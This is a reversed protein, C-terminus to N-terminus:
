KKKRIRLKIPLLTSLVFWVLVISLFTIVGKIVQPSINGLSVLPSVYDTLTLGIFLSLFVTLTLVFSVELKTKCKPCQYGKSYISYNWKYGVDNECKPCKHKLM